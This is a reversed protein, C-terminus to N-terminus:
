KSMICKFGSNTPITIRFRMTSSGKQQRSIRGPIIRNIDAETVSAKKLSPLRKFANSSCLDIMGKADIKGYGYDISHWLGASNKVWNEATKDVRKATHAILWRIDRYSLDPCVNLTLAIIGSVIPAAASTGNMAYTYNRQTDEDVTVVGKRGALESEYYSEGMLSSTMITPGTYYHEGGYASVLINSGRNSYSAFKDNANLSAVTLV